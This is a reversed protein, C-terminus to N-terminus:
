SEHTRLLKLIWTLSYGYSNLDRLTLIANKAARGVREDRSIIRLSKGFHQGWGGCGGVTHGCAGPREDKQKWTIRKLFGLGAPVDSM